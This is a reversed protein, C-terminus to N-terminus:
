SIPTSWHASCVSWSIPPIDPLLLVMQLLRAWLSPRSASTRVRTCTLVQLRRFGAVKVSNAYQMLLRYEETNNYRADYYKAVTNLSTSQANISKLWDTHHAQSKASARSAESRGFKPVSTRASDVRGGTAQAFEALSQRAAKLRVAADTTDLGAADEALYRKKWRRVNRERARQMQSIEYATYKQREVRHEPREAGTAAGADMPAPRGAGPVGCFPTAARVTGVVYVKEREM